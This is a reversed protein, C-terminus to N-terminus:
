PQRGAEPPGGAARPTGPSTAANGWFSAPDEHPKERQTLRHRCREITLDGM